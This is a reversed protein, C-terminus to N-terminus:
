AQGRAGLVFEHSVVRGAEIDITDAVPAYGNAIVTYDGPALNAFLYRGADDTLTSASMEGEDNLLAVQSHAVPAGVGAGAGDSIMGGLEAATNLVVDVTTGGTGAVTVTEAVPDCGPATVIVTYTGSTIGAAEWRGAADTVATATVQGTHDAVAVTAKAVAEGTASTTVSGHLAAMSTLVVEIDIPTSGVTVTVASPEHGAASAVLVYHGAAVQVVFTGDEHAISRAAQRGSPDIVTVTADTIVRGSAGRIVGRIVGGAIDRSPTVGDGDHHGNTEPQM